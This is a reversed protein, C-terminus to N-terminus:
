EPAPECPPVELMQTGPCEGPKWTAQDLLARVKEEATGESDLEEIRTWTEETITITRAADPEFTADRDIADMGLVTLPRIFVM